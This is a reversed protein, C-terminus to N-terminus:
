SRPRITRPSRTARQRAVAEGIVANEAQRQDEAGVEGRQRRARMQLLAKPRLVSGVQDARYPPKGDGSM